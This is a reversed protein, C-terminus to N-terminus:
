GLFKALLTVTSYSNYVMLEKQGIERSLKYSSFRKFIRESKGKDINFKWKGNKTRKDKHVNLKYKIKLQHTNDEKNWIIDIQEIVRNLFEKMKDFDDNENWSKITELEEEFGSLWDFWVDQKQLLKVEDVLVKLKKKRLDIEKQIHLNIEKYEKEKIRLTMYDSYLTKTRKELTSIEKHLNSQSKLKQSLGQNVDKRDKLKPHLFGKKFEEKITYSNSWVDVTSCWIMKEVLKLNISKSNKCEKTTSKRWKYHSNGCYYTYRSESKYKKGWM